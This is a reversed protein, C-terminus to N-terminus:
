AKANLNTLDKFIQQMFNLEAGELNNVTAKLGALLEQFAKIAETNTKDKIWDRLESLILKTRWNM